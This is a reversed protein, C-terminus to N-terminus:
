TRAVIGEADAVNAPTVWRMTTVSLRDLLRARLNTPLM